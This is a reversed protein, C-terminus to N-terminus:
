GESRCCGRVLEGCDVHRGEFVSLETIWSQDVEEAAVINGPSVWWTDSSLTTSKVVEAM